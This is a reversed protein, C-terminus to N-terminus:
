QIEFVHVDKSSTSTDPQGGIVLLMKNDLAVVFSLSLAQPLQGVVDWKDLYKNYIRIDKMPTKAPNNMIGGVILFHNCFMTSTARAVPFSTNIQNWIQPKPETSCSQILQKLSCTYITLMERGRETWGGHIYVDDDVIIGSSSSHTEPVESATRWIKSGDFVEVLNLSKVRGCDLIEGGTIILGKNSNYDCVLATTRARSTPMSSIHQWQLQKEQDYCLKYVEAKPSTRDGLEPVGGISLLINNFVALSCQYNLCDPLKGWMGDNPNFSYLKKDNALRLYIINNDDTVANCSRKLVEPAIRLKLPKYNLQFPPLCDKNSKNKPQRCAYSITSRMIAIISTLEDATPRNEAKNSICKLVFPQLPHDNPILKLDQERRENESLSTVLFSDTNNRVLLPLPNPQKRVIIEIMLVGFSFIDLKNGYTAPPILAERPMYSQTGPCPTQPCNQVISHRLKAMGLDGIKAVPINNSGINTLLVNSSSLDRHIIGNRHLYSLAKAIDHCLCVQINLPLPLSVNGQLHLYRELSTQMREMILVPVVSVSADEVIDIYSVLNPHNINKVMGCEQFFMKIIKDREDKTYKSLLKEFNLCKAACIKEDSNRIVEYVNGFSGSGILREPIQHRYKHAAQQADM